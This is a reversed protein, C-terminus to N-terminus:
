GSSPTVKNICVAKNQSLWAYDAPTDVDLAGAQVVVSLVNAAHRHLLQRAGAEDPLALLEPFLARSFLVPVGRSGNYESAVALPQAQTYLTILEHLTQPTILPQDCLLLLAAAVETETLAQVGARISTGMGAAWAPNEVVQVPLASVEDCLQERHAGLVVIVPHCRAALATEVAHRLLSRGHYRLLQKPTGMRQSAGAALIIAGISPINEM